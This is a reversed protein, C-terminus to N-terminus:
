STTAYHRVKACIPGGLNRTLLQPLRRRLTRAQYQALLGNMEDALVARGDDTAFAKRLFTYFRSRLAGRIWGVAKWREHLPKRFRRTSM